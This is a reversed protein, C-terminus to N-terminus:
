GAGATAWAELAQGRVPYGSTTMTGAGWDRAVVLTNKDVWAVIQKSHPLLFGDEVFKEAKLDFERM